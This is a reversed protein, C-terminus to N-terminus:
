SADAGDGSELLDINSGAIVEAPQIGLAECLRDLRIQSIAESETASLVAELELLTGVGVVDDLHIRVNHWLYVERRKHVQGRVGLAAALVAKMSEADTVPTLHYDSGRVRNEDARDYWILVAPRGDTERLKLRGRSVHFYTDTQVDLEGAKAGLRGLAKRVSALDPHRCKMELNRGPGAVKFRSGDNTAEPKM